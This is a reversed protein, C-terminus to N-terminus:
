NEQPVINEKNYDMLFDQLQEFNLIAGNKTGGQTVFDGVHVDIRGGDHGRLKNCYGFRFARDFFLIM